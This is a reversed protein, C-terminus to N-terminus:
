DKWGFFFICFCTMKSHISELVSDKLITSSSKLMEVFIVSVDYNWNTSDWYLRMFTGFLFVSRIASEFSCRMKRLHTHVHLWSLPINLKLIYSSINAWCWVILEALCKGLKCCCSYGKLKKKFVNRVFLKRKNTAEKAAASMLQFAMSLRSSLCQDSPKCSYMWQYSVILICHAYLM